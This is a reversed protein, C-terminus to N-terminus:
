PQLSTVYREDFCIGAGINSRPYSIKKRTLDLMQGDSTGVCIGKTSTWVVGTGLMEGSGMLALDIFTDTNEIAPYEAVKKMEMDRPNKGALFYTNRETGVWIGGAPLPRFMTVKGEFPLFNRSLDFANLNFPESYWVVPGQAIFVHGFEYAVKQGIPPGSFQRTTEPGVYSGFVWDNNAGNEVFGKEYGNMWYSRSSLEFYSVRAGATVTAIATYSYDAHLECLSTGTVFLGAGGDCWLSHINETRSTASFGKRRSVRGTKDIDVNVAVALDQVGTEKDFPLRVPDVEVNLGTSGTFITIPDSM